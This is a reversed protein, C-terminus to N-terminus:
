SYCKNEIISLLKDFSKRENVNAYDLYSQISRTISHFNAFRKEKQNKNLLVKNDSVSKFTDTNKDYKGNFILEAIQPTIKLANKFRKSIETNGIIIRFPNKLGNMYKIYHANLSVRDTLSKDNNHFNNEKNFLINGDVFIFGVFYFASNQSFVNNEFNYHRSLFFLYDGKSIHQLNSARSSLIDGYTFTIFEPDNHASYYHYKPPIFDCLLKGLLNHRFLDKYKIVSYASESKSEKIPIFEFTQNKFVPSKIGRKASDSMNVGVNAIFLKM